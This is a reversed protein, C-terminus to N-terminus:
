SIRARLDMQRIETLEEGFFSITIGPTEGVVWVSGVPYKEEDFTFLIKAKQYQRPSSSSNESVKIKGTNKYYQDLHKPTPKTLEVFLIGEETKQIDKISELNM